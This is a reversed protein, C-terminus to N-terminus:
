NDKCLIVVEVRRNMEGGNKYRPLPMEGGHNLTKIRSSSIGKNTMIRKINKVRAESLKLNSFKDGFIDTHGHLEIKSKPYYRLNEIILNITKMAKVRGSFDTKNDKYYVNNLIM